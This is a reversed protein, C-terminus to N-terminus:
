IRGSLRRVHELLTDIPFPKNLFVDSSRLIEEEEPDPNHGLITSPDKLMSKMPRGSIVIIKIKRPLERARRLVEFGTMLPLKLDLIVTDFAERQILEWASQGDYVSRTLYGKEKLIDALEDCIEEDDDAILITKKM